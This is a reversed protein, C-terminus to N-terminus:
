IMKRWTLCIGMSCAAAIPARRLMPEGVYRVFARDVADDVVPETTLSLLRAAHSGVSLDDVGVPHLDAVGVLVTLLHQAIVRRSPDAEDRLRRTLVHYSHVM